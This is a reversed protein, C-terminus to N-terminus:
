GEDARIVVLLQDNQTDGLGQFTGSLDKFPEQTVTKACTSNSVYSVHRVDITAGHLDGLLSLSTIAPIVM